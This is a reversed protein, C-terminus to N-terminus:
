STQGTLQGLFRGNDASDEAYFQGWPRELTYQSNVLWYGALRAAELFEAKESPTLKLDFM